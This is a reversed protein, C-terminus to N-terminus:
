AQARALEDAAGEVLAARLDGDLPNKVVQLLTWLCHQLDSRYDGTPHLTAEVLRRAHDDELVVLGDNKAMQERIAARTAMVLEVADYGTMAPNTSTYKADSVRELLFANLHLELPEGRLNRMPEDTPHTIYVGIPGTSGNKSSLRPIKRFDFTKM